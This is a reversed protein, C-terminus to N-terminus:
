HHTIEEARLFVDQNIRDMRVKAHPITFEDCGNPVDVISLIIGTDNQKMHTIGDICTVTVDHSLRIRDGVHYEAM